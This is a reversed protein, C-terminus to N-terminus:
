DLLVESDDRTVIRAASGRGVVAAVRRGDPLVAGPRMIYIGEADAILAVGRGADLLTYVPTVAVGQPVSATTIPDVGPPLAEEVAAADDDELPVAATTFPDTGAEQDEDLPKPPPDGVYTGAVLDFLPARGEELAIVDAPVEGSRSFQFTPPGYRAQNMYVDWPFWVSIAALTVAGGWAIVDGPGTRKLGRWVRVLPGRRRKHRDTRPRPM